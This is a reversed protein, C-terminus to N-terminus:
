EIAGADDLFRKRAATTARETYTGKSVTAFTDNTAAANRKTTSGIGGKELNIAITDQQTTKFNFLYWRSESKCCCFSSAIADTSIVVSPLFPSLLTSVFGSDLFSWYILHCRSGSGSLAFVSPFIHPILM